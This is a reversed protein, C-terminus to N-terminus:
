RKYHGKQHLYTERPVMGSMCCASCGKGDDCEQCVGSPRKDKIHQIIKDLANCIMGCGHVISDVEIHPYSKRRKIIGDPIRAVRLKEHITALVDFAQQIFPDAFADRCKQPVINGFDDKLVGRAQTPEKRKRAPYKKGDKGKVKKSPAEDPTGNQSNDRLENDTHGNRDTTGHPVGSQSEESVVRQVTSKSVGNTTAITRVSDGNDRQEQILRRLAMRRTRLVDRTEHRRRNNLKDVLKRAQQESGTFVISAPPPLGCETTARYLQWGDLIKGEYLVITRGNCGDERVGELFYDWEAGSLDPYEASIPHREYVHTAVMLSDMGAGGPSETGM